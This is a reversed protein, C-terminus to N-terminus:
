VGNREGNARSELETVLRKLEELMWGSTGGAELAEVLARWFWLQQEKGPNFSNWISDGQARYDGLLERTNHLKDALAVRNSRKRLHALYAEKRLRWSPKPGGQYDPPTDTCDQVIALVREGFRRRIEDLSADFEVPAGLADGVAGALLCGRIRERLARRM